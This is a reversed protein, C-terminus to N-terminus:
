TVVISEPEHMLTKKCRTKPGDISKRWSAHSSRIAESVQKLMATDIRYEDIIRMSGIPDSPHIHRRYKRPEVFVGYVTLADVGSGWAVLSEIPMSLPSPYVDDLLDGKLGPRLLHRLLFRDAAKEAIPAAEDRIVISQFWREKKRMKERYGSPSSVTLQAYDAPDKGPKFWLGPNSWAIVIRSEANPDIRLLKGAPQQPWQRSIAMDWRAREEYVAGAETFITDFELTGGLKDLSGRHSCEYVTKPLDPKPPEGASAPAGIATAVVFAYAAISEIMPVHCGKKEAMKSPLAFDACHTDRGYQLSRPGADDHRLESPLHM